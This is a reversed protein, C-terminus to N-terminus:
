ARGEGALGIGFGDLLVDLLHADRHVGHPLLGFLGDVFFFVNRIVFGARGDFGRKPSKM